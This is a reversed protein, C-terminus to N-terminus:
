GDANLTFSAARYPWVGGAAQTTASVHLRAPVLQRRHPVLGGVGGDEVDIADKGSLNLGSAKTHRGSMELKNNM